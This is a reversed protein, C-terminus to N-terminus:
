ESEPLDTVLSIVKENLGDVLLSSMKHFYRKNRFSVVWQIGKAANSLFIEDAQLLTEPYIHSEFVQIDLEIALNIVQMRMIGGVGGESLPPTYLANNKVFFINSTCSEAIRNNVNIILADDLKKEGAHIMAMVYLQANMTKYGSLSTVHKCQSSYVDIALGTKNLEYMETALPYLELIYDVEKQNPQYHGGFVRSICLRARGSSIGNLTILKQFVDEFFDVDWTEPIHLSLVEAGELIRTLHNELFLPKGQIVRISEFLGDAYLFGRNGAAIIPTNSLVFHGNHVLYNDM